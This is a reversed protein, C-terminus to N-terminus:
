SIKLFYVIVFFNMDSGFIVNYFDSGFSDFCCRFYFMDRNVFGKKVLLYEVLIFMNVICEYVLMINYMYM